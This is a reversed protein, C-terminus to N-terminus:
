FFATAFFGTEFRAGALTAGLRAGARRACSRLGSRARLAWAPAVRLALASALAVALAAVALANRTAGTRLAGWARPAAAGCRRSTANNTNIAKANVAITM